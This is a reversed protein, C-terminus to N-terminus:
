IEVEMVIAESWECSVIKLSVASYQLVVNVDPLNSATWDYGRDAIEKGLALSVSTSGFEPMILDLMMSDDLQRPVVFTAIRRSDLPEIHYFTGAIPSCDDMHWGCVNGHVAFSPTCPDADSGMLTLNIRAFQKNLSIKGEANEGYCPIDIKGGYLGFAQSGLPIIMDGLYEQRESLVASVTINERNVLFSVTEQKERIEVMEVLRTKNGSLSVNMKTRGDLEPVRNFAMVLVCPCDRRDEKVSCSSLFVLFVIAIKYRLNSASM